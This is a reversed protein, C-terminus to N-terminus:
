RRPPRPHQRNRQDLAWQAEARRRADKYERGYKARAARDERERRAQPNLWRWLLYAGVAYTLIGGPVDPLFDLAGSVAVPMAAPPRAVPAGADDGLSSGDLTSGPSAKM